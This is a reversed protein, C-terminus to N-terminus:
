SQMLFLIFWLRDIMKSVRGILWGVLGKWISCNKM